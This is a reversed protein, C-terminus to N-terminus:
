MDRRWPKRELCQKVVHRITISKDEIPQLVCQQLLKFLLASPLCPGHEKEASRLAGRNVTSVCLFTCGQAWVQRWLPERLKFQM